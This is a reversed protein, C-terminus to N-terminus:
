AKEGKKGFIKSSLKGVEKAGIVPVALTLVFGKWLGLMTSTQRPDQIIVVLTMATMCAVLFIVLWYARGIGGFEKQEM